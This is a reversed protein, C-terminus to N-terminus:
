AEGFRWWGTGTTRARVSPGRAESV